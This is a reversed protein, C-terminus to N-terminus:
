RINVEGEGDIERGWKEEKREEDGRGIREEELQVLGVSEVQGCLELVLLASTTLWYNQLIDLLM